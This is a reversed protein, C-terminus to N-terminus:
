AELNSLFSLWGFANLTSLSVLELEADINFLPNTLAGIWNQKVADYILRPGAGIPKKLEVIAPL